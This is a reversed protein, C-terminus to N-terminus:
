GPLQFVKEGGPRPDPYCSYRLALGFAGTPNRLPDPREVMRVVFPASDGALGEQRRCVPGTLGGRFKIQCIEGPREINEAAYYNPGKTRNRM